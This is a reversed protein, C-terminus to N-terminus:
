KAPRRPQAELWLPLGREDRLAVSHDGVKFDKVIISPPQKGLTVKSGTAEVEDGVKLSIKQKSLYEAPALYVTIDGQDTKVVAALMAAPMKSNHPMNRLSQVAGKVTTITKPNYARILMFTGAAASRMQRRNTGPPPIFAGPETSGANPAPQALVPCALAIGLTIIMLASLRKM